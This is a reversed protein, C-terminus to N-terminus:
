FLAFTAATRQLQVTDWKAEFETGTTYYGSHRFHVNTFHLGAGAYGRQALRRSFFKEDVGLRIGKFNMWPEMKSFARMMYAAVVQTSRVATHRREYALEIGPNSPDALRLPALSIINQHKLSDPQAHLVFSLALSLVLATYKRMLRIM